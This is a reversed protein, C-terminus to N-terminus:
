RPERRLRERWYGAATAVQALLLLMTLVVPRRERSAFPSAVLRVYFSPPTRAPRRHAARALTRHFRLAGHGYTFHQRWFSQLGLHHEHRVVADPAYTFGGGSRSWRHCFERDEGAARPYSTDFGGRSRFLEAPVALNNSAFFVSDGHSAHWRAFYDVLLHTATSYPNDPLANLTCGGIAHDPGEAIKAAVARLWGPEPRCDDDTFAIYEGHARAAGTNRAAAPGAHPQTLLVLEMGSPVRPLEVQGGGDDVIVAEFRDRPYDLRAIADLCKALIAPRRYTPVVISFHPLVILPRAGAM